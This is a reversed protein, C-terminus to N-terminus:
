IPAGPPVEPLARLKIKNPDQLYARVHAAAEKAEVSASQAAWNAFATLASRWQTAASAHLAGGDLVLLAADLMVWNRASQILAGQGERPTEQWSKFVMQDFLSRVSPITPDNAQQWHLRNLRKADMAYTAVHASASAAAHMADFVPAMRTQFHERNRAYENSPPTLLKQVSPPLMLSEVSILTPLIALARQQEFAPVANSGAFTDGVLGYQYQVGGLLRIVAESQYRHLLYIPVLRREAEGVERDPPLAGSAFGKLAAARIKMLQELGTIADGPIDWLLGAAHADSPTRADGDSVYDYGLKAIDARLKALGASEDQNPFKRYAHAVLYKDWEGLGTRYPAALTPAGADNLGIMPHPYDLVSGNGTRSAAFNHAFGLAHGIEHAALQKLRALAMDKSQQLVSPDKNYPALLGEAILLDQRVRQSGLNVYGKIIEGTRPDILGGGYSWGRTARHTWTITNFRVDSMSMEAPALEVRFADIFGAAEFGARWWNGGELLASRIPEPTGRDLYFVIPKVVTSRAANPDTKTLRFRPQLRVDLNKDIAQAFDFFGVSYAGSAPHYARPTYGSKPLRVFSLRQTLTIVRADIAAQQAYAGKGDGTFTLLASVDFNDPFAKATDAMVASRELSLQYAGQETQALRDVVGSLDTTLLRDINVWQRKQKDAKIEGAFLVAEAFADSVAHREAGDDSQARFKTNLRVLLAKKGAVRFQVLMPESNQARDIGIDNSGISREITAVLLLPERLQDVDVQVTGQAQDLKLEFAQISPSVVILGILLMRQCINRM